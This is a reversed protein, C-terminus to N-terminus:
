LQPTLSIYLWCANEETPRKHGRALCSSSVKYLLPHEIFENNNNILEAVDESNISTDFTGPMGHVLVPHTRHALFLQDLLKPLWLDASDM